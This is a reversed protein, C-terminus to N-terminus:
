PVFAPRRQPQRLLGVSPPDDDNESIRLPSPGPGVRQARVPPSRRSAPVPAARSLPVPSPSPGAREVRESIALRDMLVTVAQRRRAPSM